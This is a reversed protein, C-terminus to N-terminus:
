WRNSYPDTGELGLPEKANPTSVQDSPTGDDDGFTVSVTREINIPIAEGIRYLELGDLWQDHTNAWAYSGREETTYRDSRDELVDRLEELTHYIEPEEGNEVKDILLYRM